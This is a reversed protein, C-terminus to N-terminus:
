RGGIKYKLNQSLSFFPVVKQYANLNRTQQICMWHSSKPLRMGPSLM